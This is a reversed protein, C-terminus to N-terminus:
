RLISKLAALAAPHEDVGDGDDRERHFEAVVM